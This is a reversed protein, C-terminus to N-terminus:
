ESKPAAQVTLESLWAERGLAAGDLHRVRVDIKGLLRRVEIVEAQTEERAWLSPPVIVIEGM